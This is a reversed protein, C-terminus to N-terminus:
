YKWRDIKRVLRIKRFRKKKKKKMLSYKRSEALENLEKNIQIYKNTPASFEIIAYVLSLYFHRYSPKNIRALQVIARLSYYLRKRLPMIRSIIKEKKGIAYRTVKLLPETQIIAMKVLSLPEIWFFERILQFSKIVNWLAVQKKGKKICLCVLKEFINFVDNEYYLGIREKEKKKIKFFDINHENINIELNFYFYTEELLNYRRDFYNYLSSLFLM